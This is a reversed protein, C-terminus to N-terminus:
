GVEKLNKASNAKVNAAPNLALAKKFHKIVKKNDRKAKYAEGLSDYRNANKPDNKVNMNFYKVARDYDKATIMAYGMRNIQNANAMTAAEDMTKGYGDLDGKKELIQAKIALDNITKKSFFQGELASNVWGLAEDLDGGNNM